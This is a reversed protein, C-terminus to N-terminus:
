LHTQLWVNDNRCLLPGHALEKLWPAIAVARWEYKSTGQSSMPGAQDSHGSDLKDTSLGKSDM